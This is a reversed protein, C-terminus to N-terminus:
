DVTIKYRIECGQSLDYGMNLTILDGEETYGLENEKSYEWVDDIHAEIIIKYEGKELPIAYTYSGEHLIDQTYIYGNADEFRIEVLGSQTKIEYDFNYINYAENYFEIEDVSIESSLVTVEKQTNVLETKNAFDARIMFFGSLAFLLSIIAIIRNKKITKEDKQNPMYYNIQKKEEFLKSGANLIFPSVACIIFYVGVSSLPIETIAASVAYEDSGYATTLISISSLANNIFHLLMPYLMNNSKLYVYTFLIGLIATPFFRIINTHFIGFIIGVCMVIIYPNLGRLSYTITGRFFFEECIAPALSVMLFMNLPSVRDTFTYYMNESLESYQQPFLYAITLTVTIILIYAGVYMVLAGFTKRVTPKEFRFADSLKGKTICVFIISMALFAIQTILTAYFGLKEQALVSVTFLTIFAVICLIVCQWIKPKRNEKQM